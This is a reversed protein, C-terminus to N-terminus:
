APILFGFQKLDSVFNAISDIRITDGTQFKAREAMGEMFDEIGVSPLWPQADERLAQVIGLDTSAKLQGGGLINYTTM